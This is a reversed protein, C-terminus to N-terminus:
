DDVLLHIEAQGQPDCNHQLEYLQVRADFPEYDRLTYGFCHLMEATWSPWPSWVSRSSSLPDLPVTVLAM